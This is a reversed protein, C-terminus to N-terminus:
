DIDNSDIHHEHYDKLKSLVYLFYQNSLLKTEIGLQNRFLSMMIFLIGFSADMYVFRSPITSFYVLASSLLMIIGAIPILKDFSDEIHNLIMKNYDNRIM